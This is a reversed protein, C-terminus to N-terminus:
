HRDIHDVGVRGIAGFLSTNQSYPLGLDKGLTRWFAASSATRAPGLGTVARCGSVQVTVPPFPRRGVAFALRLSGRFQAPCNVPGRPMAPLRCLAAALGRVPGPEGITIGRPLVMAPELVHMPTTRSVM